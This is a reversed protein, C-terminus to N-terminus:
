LRYVMYGPEYKKAVRAIKGRQSKIVDQEINEDSSRIMLIHDTVIGRSTGGSNRFKFLFEIEYFDIDNSEIIV